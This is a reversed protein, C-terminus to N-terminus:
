KSSKTLIVKKVKELIYKISSLADDNAPIPYDVLNPDTNTDCIGIIKIKKAHAEKIALEDKKIDLVFIADPLKTLNKIGEFKIKLKQIEKNIKIQEKKTYKELGGEIKEKELNKLHETRKLITKLNTFTGGLWRENIYPLNCEEAVSKAFDKAQIKTGVLLITKGESVLEKIFNLAKELEKTTKELDILHITNKVGKIYPRMKPHVRSTRHGLNVGAEEMEDLNIEYKNTQKKHKQKEEM